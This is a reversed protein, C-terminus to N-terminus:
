SPRTPLGARSPITKPRWGSDPAAGGSATSTPELSSHDAHPENLKDREMRSRVRGFRDM